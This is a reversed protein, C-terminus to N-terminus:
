HSFQLMESQYSRDSEPENASSQLQNPNAIEASAKLSNRNLYIMSLIAVAALLFVSYMGMYDSYQGVFFAVGLLGITITIKPLKIIPSLPMNEDRAVRTRSNSTNVFVGLTKSLKSQPYHELCTRYIRIVNDSLYYNNEIMQRKERQIYNYDFPEVYCKQTLSTQSIIKIIMEKPPIFM